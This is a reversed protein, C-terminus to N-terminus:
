GSEHAGADPAAGRPRRTGDRDVAPEGRSGGRDIAESGATLRLDMESDNSRDRYGVDGDPVLLNTPGCEVGSEWLNHELVAAQSTSCRTPSLSAMVNGVVVLNCDTEVDPDGGDIRITGIVSNYRFTVDGCPRETDFFNLEESDNVVENLVSNEIVLDRIPGQDNKPIIDADACNYFTSRRVTVNEGATLQLCDSHAAPFPRVVDHFTVNEITINKPHHGDDVPYAGIFMADQTEDDPQDPHIQPGLDSDRLTFNWVSTVTMSHGNSGMVTVDGARQADFDSRYKFSAELLNVDRFTIHPVLVEIDHVTVKGGAAAMFTVDPEDADPDGKVTGTLEADKYTGSRVFVMDGQRASEYAASFTGCAKRDRYPAPQRSRECSGGDKDIWLHAIASRPKMASRPKSRAGREPTSEGGGLLLAALGAVLAVSAVLAALRL